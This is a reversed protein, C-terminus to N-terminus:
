NAELLGLEQNTCAYKGHYKRAAIDYAVAADRPNDFYGLHKQKYNVTIYAVYKQYKKSFSVGKYGSSNRQSIRRNCGNQQHTAWRCNTPEYNGNIDIRDLEYGQPKLGMDKLFNEFKLWRSCVKIGRGGYNEFSSHTPDTCRAKMAVWTRYEPSHMYNSAHGHRKKMGM